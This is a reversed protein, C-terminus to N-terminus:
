TRHSNQVDLQTRLAFNSMNMPENLLLFHILCFNVISLGLLIILTYFVEIVRKIFLIYRIDKLKSLSTIKGCNFLSPHLFVTIACYLLADLFRILLIGCYKKPLSKVDDFLSNTMGKSSYLVKFMPFLFRRELCATIAARM